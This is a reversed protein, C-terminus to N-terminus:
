DLLHTMKDDLRMFGSDSISEFAFGIGAPAQEQPVARRWVVRAVAEVPPEVSFRITMKLGFPLAMGTKVFFGGASFDAVSAFITVAESQCWCRVAARRRKSKRNEHM